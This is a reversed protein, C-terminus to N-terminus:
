KQKILNLDSEFHFARQTLSHNAGGPYELAKNRQWDQQHHALVDKFKKPVVIIWVGFDIIEHGHIGHIKKLGLQYKASTSEEIGEKSSCDYKYDKNLTM